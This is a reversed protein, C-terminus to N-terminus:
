RGVPGTLTGQLRYRGSQFSVERTELEAAEVVSGTALPLAVSALVAACMVVGCQWRM